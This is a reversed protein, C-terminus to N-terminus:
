PRHSPLVRGQGGTPPSRFLLLGFGAALGLYAAGLMAAPAPTPLSEIAKVMALGGATFHLFNAMVIPRSYIGGLLNGRAMWNLMAFGLYMAGCTQIALAEVPGVSPKLMALLERPAFSAALGLAAMLAASSVMLLRSWRM